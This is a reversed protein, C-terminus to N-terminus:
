SEERFEIRPAGADERVEFPYGLLYKPRYVRLGISWLSFGRGDTLKCVEDFWEPSMVWTPKGPESPTDRLITYLYVILEDNLSDGSM